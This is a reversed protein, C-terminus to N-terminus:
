LLIEMTHNTKILVQLKAEQYTTDNNASVTEVNKGIKYRTCNIFNDKHNGSCIAHKFDEERKSCEKLNHNEGYLLYRTNAKSSLVTHGMIQYNYCQQPPEVFPKIKYSHYINVANSMANGSFTIKLSLSDEWTNGLRKIKIVKTSENDTTDRIRILNLLEEPEVDM